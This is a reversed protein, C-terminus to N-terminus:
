RWGPRPCGSVSNPNLRVTKRRPKANDPSLAARIALVQWRGQELVWVAMYRSILVAPADGRHINGEMRGTVTACQGVVTAQLDTFQLTDYRMKRGSLKDLYSTKGDRVGSSHVYVLQEHLTNQLAAIDAQVMSACRNQELAILQTVLQDNPM